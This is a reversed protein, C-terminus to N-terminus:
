ENFADEEPANRAAVAYAGEALEYLEACECVPKLSCVPCRELGCVCGWDERHDECRTFASAPACCSFRNGNVCFDCYRKLTFTGQMDCELCLLDNGECVTCVLNRCGDTDCQLDEQYYACSACFVHGRVCTVAGRMDHVLGDARQLTCEM